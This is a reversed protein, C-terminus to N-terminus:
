YIKSSFSPPPINQSRGDSSKLFLYTKKSMIKMGRSTELLHPPPVYGIMLITESMRFVPFAHPLLAPAFCINTKLGDRKM